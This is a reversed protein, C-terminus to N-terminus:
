RLPIKKTNGTIPDIRILIHAPQRYPDILFFINWKGNSFVVDAKTPNVVIEKKALYVIASQVAEDETLILLNKSKDSIWLAFLSFVFLGTILYIVNRKFWIKM